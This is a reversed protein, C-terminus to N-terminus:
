FSAKFIVEAETIRDRLFLPKCQVMFRMIQHPFPQWDAQAKINIM